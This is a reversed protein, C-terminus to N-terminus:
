RSVPRREWASNFVSLSVTLEILEKASCISVRLERTSKLLTAPGWGRRARARKFKLGLGQRPGLGSGWGSDLGSGWGSGLGAWVCGEGRGPDDADVGLGLGYGLGSGFGFGFGLGGWIMPM